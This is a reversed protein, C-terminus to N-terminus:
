NPVTGKKSETCGTNAHGRKWACKVASTWRDHSCDANRGCGGNNITCSDNGACNTSTHVAKYACKVASTRPDHSCEAKPDCGGNNVTCRMRQTTTHAVPTKIADEMKSTAIIKARLTSTPVPTPIVMKIPACWWMQQSTMRALLMRIAVEMTSPVLTVWVPCGTNTYGAKCTCKVAHGKPEHSCDANPDCDGNNVTCSDTCVVNTANGTNTYGIKCTCTIATTTRNESCLANPGCGGNNQCCCGEAFRGHFAQLLFVLLPLWAYLLRGHLVM